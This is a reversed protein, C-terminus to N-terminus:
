LNLYLSEALGASEDVFVLQCLRYLVMTWQWTNRLIQSRQEDDRRLLKRTFGHRKLTDYVIRPTIVFEWEDFFEWTVEDALLTHRGLMLDCIWEEQFINLTQQRGRKGRNLQTTGFHFLNSAARKVTSKSVSCIKAIEGNTQDREVAHAIVGHM